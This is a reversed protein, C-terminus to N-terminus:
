CCEHPPAKRQASPRVYTLPPFACPIEMTFQALAFPVVGFMGARSVCEHSIRQAAASLHLSSCLDCNLHM